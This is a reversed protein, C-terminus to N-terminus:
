YIRLYQNESLAQLFVALDNDLSGGFLTVLPSVGSAETFIFPLGRQVLAGEPAGISIPNLAGGAAAGLTLAGFFEDSAHFANITLARIATRSVEAVRVKLQVQQGGALSTMDVFRLRSTEFFSRLQQVQEARALKGSVVIMDQAQTLELDADPFVKALVTEVYELNAVVDVRARWLEEQENWLFVDTSGIGKGMVLVRDPALARIDAIEPNTVSIRKVFWPALIVESRGLYLSILKPAEPVDGNVERPLVVVLTTLCIAVILLYSNNQHLM